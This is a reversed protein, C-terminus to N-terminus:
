EFKAIKTFIQSLIVNKAIDDGIMTIKIHVEILIHIEMTSIFFKSIREFKAIKSVIQALPRFIPLIVMKAIAEGILSIKLQFKTLVQIEM